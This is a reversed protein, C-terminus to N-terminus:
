SPRSAGCKELSGSINPHHHTASGDVTPGEPKRPEGARENSRELAFLSSFFLYLCPHHAVRSLAKNSANATERDFTGLQHQELCWGAHRGSQLYVFTLVGRVSFMKARRLTVTICPSFCIISMAGSCSPCCCNCPNNSWYTGVHRM